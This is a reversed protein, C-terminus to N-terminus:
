CHVPTNKQFVGFYLSGEEPLFLPAGAHKQPDWRQPIDWDAGTPLLSYKFFPETFILVSFIYLKFNIKQFM